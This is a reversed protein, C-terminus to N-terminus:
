FYNVYEFYFYESISLKQKFLKTNVPLTDKTYIIHIMYLISCDPMSVHNVGCLEYCHGTYIGEKKLLFGVANLGVLFQM